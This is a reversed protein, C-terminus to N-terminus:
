EVFDFELGELSVTDGTKAGKKRLAKLIGFDKLLKQFHRMSDPDAPNTREMITKILPGDVIYVGEQRQVEFDKEESEMEWKEIIGEELIPEPVPLTLLVSAARKMLEKTGEGIAASIEFVEIGKPELYDRLKKANEESNEMDMKNVAVIEPRNSRFLM